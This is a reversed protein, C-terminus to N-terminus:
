KCPTIGVGSDYNEQFYNNKPFTKDQYNLVRKRFLYDRFKRTFLFSNPM